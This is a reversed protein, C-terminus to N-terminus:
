VLRAVCPVGESVRCSPEKWCWSDAPQASSRGVEPHSESGSLLLMGLSKM